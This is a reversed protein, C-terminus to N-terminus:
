INLSAATTQVAGSPFSSFGTTTKVLLAVTQPVSVVVPWTSGTAAQVGRSVEETVAVGCWSFGDCVVMMFLCPECGDPGVM